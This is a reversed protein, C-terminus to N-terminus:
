QREVRRVNKRLLITSRSTASTSASITILRTYGSTDSTSGFLTLRMGSSHFRRGLASCQNPVSARPRSMQVRAQYPTRLEKASANQMARDSTPMPM